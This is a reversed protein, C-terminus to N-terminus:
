IRTAIIKAHSMDKTAEYPTFNFLFNRKSDSVSYQEEKIVRPYEGIMLNVLMILHLIENFCNM